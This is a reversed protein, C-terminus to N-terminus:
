LGVQYHRKGCHILGGGGWAEPTGFSHHCGQRRECREGDAQIHRPHDTRQRQEVSGGWEQAELERHDLSGDNHSPERRHGGWCGVYVRPVTELYPYEPLLQHLAPVTCGSAHYNLPVLLGAPARHEFMKPRGHHSCNGIQSQMDRGNHDTGRRWTGRNGGDHVTYALVVPEPIHGGRAVAYGCHGVVAVGVPLEVTDGVERCQPACDCSGLRVVQPSACVLNCLGAGQIGSTGLYTNGQRARTTCVLPAVSVLALPLNDVAEAVIVSGAERRGRPRGGRHLRHNVAEQVM